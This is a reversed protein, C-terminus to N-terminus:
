KFKLIMYINNSEEDSSKVMEKLKGSLKNDELAEKLEEINLEIFGTGSNATFYINEPSLNIEKGKYDKM